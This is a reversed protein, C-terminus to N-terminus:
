SATLAPIRPGPEPVTVIAATAPQLLLLGCCGAYLYMSRVACTQSLQANHALYQQRHADSSATAPLGIATSDRGPVVAHTTRNASTMEFYLVANKRRQHLHGRTALM